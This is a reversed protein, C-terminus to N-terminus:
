INIREHLPFTLQKLNGPFSGLPSPLKPSVLRFEPCFRETPKSNKEVKKKLRKPNLDVQSSFVSNVGKKEGKEKM